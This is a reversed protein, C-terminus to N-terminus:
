QPKEEEVFLGAFIEEAPKNDIPQPVSKGSRSQPRYDRIEPLSLRRQRLVELQAKIKELDM